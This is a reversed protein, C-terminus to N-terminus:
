SAALLAALAAVIVWWVWETHLKANSAIDAVLAFAVVLLCQSRRLTSISILAVAIPPWVYYPAIVTEFACWLSLGLAIVAILMSLDNLVQRFLIGLILCSFIALLRAPGDGTATVATLGVYGSHGLTPAFHLWPTPRNLSPYTAQNTLASITVQWNMMLPLILLLLTPALIRVVLGPLRKWGAGLLLPPLALLVFPQFAIAAGVLWGFRSWRQERAALCAYLLCAVAVADEPHGWVLVNYLAYVEAACIVVRRVSSAGLRVATADVAFLAPACLLAEYPGLILWATPHRLMFDFSVSMGASHAIWWVPTLLVVIGPTTGLTLQGYISSYAGIDALHALQLYDWIDM